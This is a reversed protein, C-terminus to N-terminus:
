LDEFESGDGGLDVELEYFKDFGDVDVNVSFKAQAHSSGTSPDKLLKEESISTSNLDPVYSMSGLLDLDPIADLDGDLNPQMYDTAHTVPITHLRSASPRANIIYKDDPSPESESAIPNISDTGGIHSRHSLLTADAKSVQTPKLPSTSETKSSLSAVNFDDSSSTRDSQTQTTPLTPMSSINDAATGAGYVKRQTSGFGLGRSLGQNQNSVITRKPSPLSSSSALSASAGVGMRKMNFVVAEKASNDLSEYVGPSSGATDLSVYPADAGPAYQGSQASMDESCGDQPTDLDVNDHVDGQIVIQDPEQIHSASGEIDELSHSPFLEPDEAMYEDEPPVFEPQYGIISSDNPLFLKYDRPSETSHILLSNQGSNISHRSSFSMANLGKQITSLLATATLPAKAACVDSARLRRSVDENLSDGDKDVSFNSEYDELDLYEDHEISHQMIRDQKIAIENQDPSMTSVKDAVLSADHSRRLAEELSRKFISAQNSANEILSNMTSLSQNAGSVASDQQLELELDAFDSLIDESNHSDKKQPPVTQYSLGFSPAKPEVNLNPLKLSSSSSQASSTTKEISQENVIGSAGSKIASSKQELSRPSLSSPFAPSIGTINLNSGLRPRTPASSQTDFSSSSEYLTTHAGTINSSQVARFANKHAEEESEVVEVSVTSAKSASSLTGSSSSSYDMFKIRRGKQSKSTSNGSDKNPERDYSLQLAHPSDAERLQERSYPVKSDYEIDPALPNAGLSSGSSTPRSKPNETHHSLKLNDHTNNVSNVQRDSYVETISGATLEEEPQEILKSVSDIASTSSNQDRERLSEHPLSQETAKNIEEHISNKSPKAWDGSQESTPDTTNIHILNKPVNSPFNSTVASQPLILSIDKEASTSMSKSIPSPMTIETAKIDDQTINFLNDSMSTPARAMNKIPRPPLKVVNLSQIIPPSFDPSEDPLRSSHLMSLAPAAVVSDRDDVPFPPPDPPISTFVKARFRTRRSGTADDAYDNNIPLESIDANIEPGYVAEEVSSPRSNMMLESQDVRFVSKSLPTKASDEACPTQSIRIVSTNPYSSPVTSQDVPNLMPVPYIGSNQPIQEHPYHSMSKPTHTPPCPPYAVAYPYAQAQQAPWYPPAPYSPATANNPVGSMAYHHQPLMQIQPHSFPQTPPVMQQQGTLQELDAIRRLLLQIAQAQAQERQDSQARENQLVTAFHSYQSLEKEKQVLHELNLISQTFTQSLQANRAAIELLKDKDERRRSSSRVKKPRKAKLLEAFIEASSTPVDHIKEESISNSPPQKKKESNSNALKNTALPAASTTSNPRPAPLASQMGSNSDLSPPPLANSISVLPHSIDVSSERPASRSLHLITEMVHPAETESSPISPSAPALPVCGQAEPKPKDELELLGAAAMARKNDAIAEAMYRQLIDDDRQKALEFYSTNHTSSPAPKSERTKTYVPPFNVLSSAPPIDLDVPRQTLNHASYYVGSAGAPRLLIRPQM